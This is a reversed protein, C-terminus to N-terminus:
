WGGGPWRRSLWGGRCWGLCGGLWCGGRWRRTVTLRGRVGCRWVAPRRGPQQRGRGPGCGGAGGCGRLQGRGASGPGRGGGGGGGCPRARSGRDGVRRGGARRPCAGVGGPVAGGAAVAARRGPLPRLTLQAVTSAVPQGAADALTVSVAEAGAPVIRVRAASPGEAHVALGTFAFPLAAVAGGSAGASRAICPTCPLMWYRPTCPSVPRPVARPWRWRPSCSRGADGHRTCGASRRVTSTAPRPWRPTSGRWTLRCRGPRLGNSGGPRPPHPPRPPCRGPRM